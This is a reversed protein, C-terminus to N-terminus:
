IQSSCDLDLRPHLSILSPWKVFFVNCEHEYQPTNTSSFCFQTQKYPTGKPLKQRPNETVTHYIHVNTM